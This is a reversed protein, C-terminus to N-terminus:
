SAVARTPRSCIVSISDLKGTLAIDQSVHYLDM